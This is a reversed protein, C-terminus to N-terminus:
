KQSFIRDVRRGFYLKSIALSDRQVGVRKSTNMSPRTEVTVSRRIDTTPIYVASTMQCRLLAVLPCTKASHCVILLLHCLPREFSQTLHTRMANQGYGVAVLVQINKLLIISFFIFMQIQTRRSIGRGYSRMKALTIGTLFIFIMEKYVQKLAMSAHLFCILPRNLYLVSFQQQQLHFKHIQFNDKIILPPMGHRFLNRIPHDGIRKFCYFFFISGPYVM